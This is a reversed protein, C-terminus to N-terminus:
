KLTHTCACLSDEIHWPSIIINCVNIQGTTTPSSTPSSTPTPTALITRVSEEVSLMRKDLQGIRRYPATIQMTYKYMGYWTCTYTNSETDHRRHTCQVFVCHTYDNNFCMCDIEFCVYLVLGTSNLYIMQLFLAICVRETRKWLISPLLAPYSWM